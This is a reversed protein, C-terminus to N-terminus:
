FTFFTIFKIDYNCTNERHPLGLNGSAQQKPQRIPFVLALHYHFIRQSFASSKDLRCSQSGNSWNVMRQLELRVTGNYDGSFVKEM